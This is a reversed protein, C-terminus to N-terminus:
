YPFVEKYKLEFRNHLDDFMKKLDNDQSVEIAAQSLSNLMEDAESRQFVVTIEAGALTLKRFRKKIDERLSCYKLIGDREKQTFSFDLYPGGPGSSRKRKKTIIEPIAKPM